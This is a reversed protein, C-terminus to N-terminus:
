AVRAFSVVNARNKRDRLILDYANLILEAKKNVPFPRGALGEEVAELAIQLVDRNLLAVGGNKDQASSFMEGEGTLLWKADIGFVSAYAGLVSATPENEGREYAALSNKSIGLQASVASRDPDGLAKRISRLRAGLETKSISEPRAM